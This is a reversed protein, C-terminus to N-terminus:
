IPFEEIAFLDELDLPENHSLIFQNVDYATLDDFNLWQGQEVIQEVNNENEDIPLDIKFEPIIKRWMARMNSEKIESWSQGIM